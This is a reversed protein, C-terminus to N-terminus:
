HSAHVSEGKLHWGEDDIMLTLDRTVVGPLEELEDRMDEDIDEDGLYLVEVPLNCGLKRLSRIVTMLLKVQDNGATFVLGRGGGYFSAHLSM